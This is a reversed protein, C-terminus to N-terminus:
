RGTCRPDGPVVAISGYPSDGHYTTYIRNPGDCKSAVNNFGDPMTVIDAAGSNTAARPADKFPEAAKDTCGALTLALLATGAAALLRTRM